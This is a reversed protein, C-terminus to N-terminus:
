ALKIVASERKLASALSIQHAASEKKRRNEKGKGDM